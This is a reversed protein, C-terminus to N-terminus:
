HLTDINLKLFTVFALGRKVFYIVNIQLCKDSYLFEHHLHTGLGSNYTSCLVFMYVMNERAIISFYKGTPSVFVM